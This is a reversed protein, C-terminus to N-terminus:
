GEFNLNQFAQLTQSWEEVDNIGDVNVIGSQNLFMYESPHLLGFSNDTCIQYFIHYNREDNAQSIVRSKELLYQTNNAGCLKLKNSNNSQNFHITLWKGFRSSNNNRATKANGLLYKTLQIHIFLLISDFM